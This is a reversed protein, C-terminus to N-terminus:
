FVFPIMEKEIAKECAEFLSKDFMTSGLLLNQRPINILLVEMGDALAASCVPMGTHADLLHILDPFTAIRQGDKEATMYENWFTIEYSKGIVASGVDFGGKSTLRFDHLMGQAIVQMGIQKELASILKEPNNEHERITRGVEMCMSLTGIAAHSRVYEAEVPNRLVNIMGGSMTSATRVIQSTGAITGETFLDLRNGEIGGAAAQVTRYGEKKHLSMAGMIGTPHARGNCAADLVPLHNVAAAIWGNTISQGGSENSILAGINCGTNKRFLDYARICGAGSPDDEGSSPSGVLSGTVVLTEPALEEITCVDFGGNDMAVRIVAKGGSLTGGGGGGLLWGGYIANLALEETM